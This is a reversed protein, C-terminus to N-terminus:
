IKKVLSPVLVAYPMVHGADTLHNPDANVVVVALLAAITL